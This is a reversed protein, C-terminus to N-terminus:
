GKVGPGTRMVVKRADDVTTGNAGVLRFNDIHYKSGWYNGGFGSRLYEVRPSALCLNEVTLTTDNPFVKKLAPLLDFRATHWRDDASIGSISGLSIVGEGPLDSATFGVVLWRQNVRMYLNMKVGTEARYDFQLAPFKVASFQKVGSWVTMDGGSVKNLVRLSRSGHSHTSGDTTLIPSEETPETTWADSGQEFDCSLSVPSSENIKWQAAAFPSPTTKLVSLASPTGGKEFCVRARAVMLGNRWTWLAVQGAPLPNPDTYEGAPQDDVFFRFRNGRKEIRLYFWHRQFALNTRAPNIMKVQDNQSVIQDKRMIRSVTNNAAAFMFSYGSSVDRGNGCVSVNLDSPHRYGVVPDDINDMYPALWAEVTMDGRFSQKTWLMPSESQLGGFFSWRNDCPWRQAVDWVGRTSWWETPPGSFTCDVMNSGTADLGALPPQGELSKAGVKTGTLPDPDRFSVAVASGLTGAVFDGERWLQLRQEDSEVLLKGSGNAVTAGRRKLELTSQGDAAVKALLQYGSEATVGDGNIVLSGNIKWVDFPVELSVKPDGYFEGLHWATQDSGSRWSGSASAWGAMTDEKTFQEEVRPKTTEELRCWVVTTNFRAGGDGKAYFGLRGALSGPVVTAVVLQDNVFAKVRGKNVDVKLRSGKGASCPNASEAVVSRKGESVRVIQAKGSASTPLVFISYQKSDHYAFALGVQEAREPKVEAAFVYDNWDPRGTVTIGEGPQTTRRCHTSTQTQWPGGFDDWKGPEALDFDERFGDTAVVRVDDFTARSVNEAYLGVKGQGFADDRISCVQQGDIYGSLTGDRVAFRLRYWQDPQYGGVQSVLTTSKGGEVRVIERRGLESRGEGAATWRFLFYNKPDQLSAVIGLAGKQSAAGTEAEPKVCVDVAYDDWYWYGTSCLASPQAQVVWSFANSSHRGVAGAHNGVAIEAVQGKGALVDWQSSEGSGRTFDDAFYVPAREQIRLGDLSAGNTVRWGAAGGSLDDDYGRAVTEGNCILTIRWVRRKITFPISGEGPAIVKASALTVSKGNETKTLECQGPLFEVSLYNADDKCNFLVTASAGGGRLGTVKGRLSFEPPCQEELVEMKPSAAYAEGSTTVLLWALILLFPLDNIRFRVCM